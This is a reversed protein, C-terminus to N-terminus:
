LGLFTPISFLMLACSSAPAAVGGQKMVHREEDAPRVPLPVDLRPLGPAPEMRIDTAAAPGGRGGRQRRDRDCEQQQAGREHQGLPWLWLDGRAAQPTKEFMWAAPLLLSVARRCCGLPKRGNPWVACPGPPV